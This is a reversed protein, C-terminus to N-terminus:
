NRTTGELSETDSQNDTKKTHYKYEWGVAEFLDYSLKKGNFSTALSEYSNLGALNGEGTTALKYVLDAYRSKLRKGPVIHNLYVVFGLYDVGNRIDYIKVKKPHLTLGLTKLYDRIEEIDYLVQEYEDKRAVFYFDDVYRGYHKRDLNLTIFRDLQDLYINSLLQSTLNGIVIGQGEPQNRLIKTPAVDEWDSPKGRYQVGEVPDDMIVAKWLYKLLKYLKDSKDPFQRDLGWLIREYLRKRSLSMFYGQIDMKVVITPITGNISVSKINHQLDKIAYQTGKGKRCSYAGKNLRPEWWINTHNYLFHHVVRDVFPAAFIERAVPDHIIFSISRSPKYTRAIISDRLIILNEMENIEFRHEDLTKRKGNIRAERYAKYLEALLWDEFKKSM